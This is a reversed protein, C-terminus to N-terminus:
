FRHSGKDSHRDEVSDGYCDEGDCGDLREGGLGPGAFEVSDDALHVGGACFEFGGLGVEAPVEVFEDDLFCGGLGSGDEEELVACLELHTGPDGRRLGLEDFILVTDEAEVIRVGVM